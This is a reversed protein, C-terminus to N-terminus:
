EDGELGGDRGKVSPVVPQDAPIASPVIDASFIIIIIILQFFLDM